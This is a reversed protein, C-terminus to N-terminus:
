EGPELDGVGSIETHIEEPRVFYLIDGTGSVAANLSERATLAV